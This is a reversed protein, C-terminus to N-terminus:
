NDIFLFIAFVNFKIIEKKNNYFVQFFFFFVKCNRKVFQIYEQKCIYHKHIVIVCM